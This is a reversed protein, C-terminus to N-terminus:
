TEVEISLTNNEADYSISDIPCDVLNNVYVFVEIDGKSVMAGMLEKVLEKIKM